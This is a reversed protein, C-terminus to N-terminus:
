LYITEEVYYEKEDMSWKMQAKYMGKEQRDVDFTLVSDASAKLVFTLDSAENSPRFLKLEGKQVRNFEKFSIQLVNNVVAIEPKNILGQANKSRDIQQQYDLEQKYYDTAVLSIDERVGVFVLTGIFSAFLIFSVVIWNGWNM